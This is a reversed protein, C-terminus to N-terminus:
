PSGRKVIRLAPASRVTVFTIAEYQVPDALEINPITGHKLKHAWWRDLTMTIRNERLLYKELYPNGRIAERVARARRRCNKEGVLAEFRAFSAPFQGTAAQTVIQM